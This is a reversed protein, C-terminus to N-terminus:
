EQDILKCYVGTKRVHRIFSMRNPIWFRYETENNLKICVFPVTLLRNYCNIVEIDQYKMVIHKYQPAVSVKQTKYHVAEDDLYIGGGLLGNCCFSAIFAKKM